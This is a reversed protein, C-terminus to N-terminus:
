KQIPLDDRWAEVDDAFNPPVVEELRALFGQPLGRELAAVASRVEGVTRAGFCTTDVLGSDTSYAIAAQAVPIDFESCVQGLAQARTRLRDPPPRYALTADPDQPAALLGGGFPAGNVIGLDLERARRYLDTAARDLLTYRNHNLFCDCEGTEIYRRILDVPGGSVGVSGVVGEDRFQALAKFAGGMVDDFQAREVDHILVVPLHDVGLLELSVPLCARAQEYSYDFEWPRYGIKTVLVLDDPVIASLEKLAIGLREESDGYMPSTDIYNIGSLLIERIVAIADDISEVVPSSSIRAAGQALPTVALGTRGFRRRRM